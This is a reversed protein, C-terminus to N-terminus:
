ASASVYVYFIKFFCRIEDPRNSVKQAAIILLAIVSLDNQRKGYQAAQITHQLPGLGSVCLTLLAEDPYEWPKKGNIYYHHHVNLDLGPAGSFNEPYFAPLRLNLQYTGFLLGLDFRQVFLLRSKDFAIHPDDVYITRYPWGDLSVDLQDYPDNPNHIRHHM